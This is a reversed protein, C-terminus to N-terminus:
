PAILTISHAEPEGCTHRAPKVDFELRSGLRLEDAAVGSRALSRTHAFVTATRDGFEHGDPTLFVHGGQLLRCVTGIMQTKDKKLHRPPPSPQLSKIHADLAADDFLVPKM